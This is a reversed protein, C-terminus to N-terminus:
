KLLIMKNVKSFETGVELRYFYIGSPLGNSIFPVEYQGVTMEKNVLQKVREGLINFVSLKVLGKKILSFRITTTPNFPNPYNQFLEFKNPVSEDVIESIFQKTSFTFVDDKTIPDLYKM